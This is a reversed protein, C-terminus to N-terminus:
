PQLAGEHPAHPYAQVMVLTELCLVCLTRLWQEGTCGVSYSDRLLM